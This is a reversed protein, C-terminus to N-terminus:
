KIGPERNYYLALKEMDTNYDEETSEFVITGGTTIVRTIIGEGNKFPQPLHWQIAVIHLENLSVTSLNIM